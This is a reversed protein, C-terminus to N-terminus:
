LPSSTKVKRGRKKAKPAAEPEELVKEDHVEHRSDIFVFGAREAMSSYAEVIEDAEQDRGLARLSGLRATVEEAHEKINWPTLRARERGTKQTDWFLDRM